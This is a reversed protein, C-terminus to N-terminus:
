CRSGVATPAVLRLSLAPGQGVGNALILEWRSDPLRFEFRYTIPGAGTASLRLVYEAPRLFAGNTGRTISEPEGPDLTSTGEPGIRSIALGTGTYRGRFTYFAPLTLVVRYDVTQGPSLEGALAIGDFADNPLLAGLDNPDANSERAAVTFTGLVGEPLAPAVPALGALDVLGGAEPLRVTYRGEPLRRGFLYSVRAAFEDYARAVM